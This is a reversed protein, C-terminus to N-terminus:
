PFSVGSHLVVRMIGMDLPQPRGFLMRSSEALAPQIAGIGAQECAGAVAEAALYRGRKGSDKSVPVQGAGILYVDKM